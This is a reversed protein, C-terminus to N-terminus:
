AEKELKRNNFKKTLCVNRLIASYLLMKEKNVIKEADLGGNRSKVTRRSNYYRIGNDM